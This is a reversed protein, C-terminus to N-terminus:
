GEKPFYCHFTTCEPNCEARIFGNHIAMIKKCIALGIGSGRYKTKEHGRYFMEFIKVAHEINFGIGNDSITIVDYFVDPQADTFQIEGGMLVQANIEIVPDTNDKKFKIANDLLHTLLITLHEPYGNIEPMKGVRLDTNSEKIKKNLNVMAATIIENLDVRSKAEGPSNIQSYSIIDDTLLKMKQIASQARRVNAKGSDSLNSAEHVVIYELSTYLNKLTDLYDNAAVTNFTRLESNLLSLERNKSILSQNLEKITEEAEKMETIDERSILLGNQFKQVKFHLWRDVGNITYRLIEDLLHGTEIVKTFLKDLGAKKALPFKQLFLQGEWKLTLPDNDNKSVFVYRYDVIKGQEKSVPELVQVGPLITEFVAELLASDFATEVVGSIPQINFKPNMGKRGENM